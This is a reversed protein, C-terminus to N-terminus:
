PEGGFGSIQEIRAIRDALDAIRTEHDDIRDLAAQRVTPPVQAIYGDFRAAIAHLAAIVEQHEADLKDMFTSLNRAQQSTAVEITLRAVDKSLQAKAVILADVDGLSAGSALQQAIKQEIIGLAAIMDFQEQQRAKITDIESTM